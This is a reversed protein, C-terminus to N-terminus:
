KLMILILTQLVLILNFGLKLLSLKRVGILYRSSNDSVLYIAIQDPVIQLSIDNVLARLRHPAMAFGWALTKSEGLM